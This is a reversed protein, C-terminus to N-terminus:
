FHIDFIRLRFSCFSIWMYTPTECEKLNHNKQYGFLNLASIVLPIWQMANMTMIEPFDNPKCQFPEYPPLNRGLANTTDSRWCSWCVVWIFLTSRKMSFIKGCGYLWDAKLYSSWPTNTVFSVWWPVPLYRRDTISKQIVTRSRLSQCTGVSHNFVLVLWISTRLLMCFEYPSTDLNFRYATM